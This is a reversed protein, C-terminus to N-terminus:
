GASTVCSFSSVSWFTHIYHVTHLSFHSFNATPRFFVTKLTIASANVSPLHLVSMSLTLSCLLCNDYPERPLLKIVLFLLKVAESVFLSHHSFLELVRVSSISKGMAIIMILHHQVM